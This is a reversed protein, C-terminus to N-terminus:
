YQKLDVFRAERINLEAQRWMTSITAKTPQSTPSILIVNGPVKIVTPAMSKKRRALEKRTQCRIPKRM